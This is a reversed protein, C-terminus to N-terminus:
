TSKLATEEPLALLKLQFNNQASAINSQVSNLLAYFKQDSVMKFNISSSLAHKELVREKTACAKKSRVSKEAYADKFCLALM